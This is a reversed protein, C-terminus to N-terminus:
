KAFGMRRRIEKEPVPTVTTDRETGSGAFDKGLYKRADIAGRMADDFGESWAQHRPGHPWPNQDQSGRRHGAGWGAAYDDSYEYHVVNEMSEEGHHNQTSEESEM